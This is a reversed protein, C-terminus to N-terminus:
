YKSDGVYDNLHNKNNEVGVMQVMHSVVKELDKALAYSELELLCKELESRLMCPEQGKKIKEHVTDSAKDAILLEEFLKEGPRLGIYEIEISDEVNDSSPQHMYLAILNEALTKIKVPEGMDLLFIEGGDALQTTQLVLFCAEEITMFFRTVDPHTITVPGGTKIQELFLPIVSGSSNLVNGFRVASFRCDSDNGFSQVIMESIRKTLGMVNTPRVAKDSSILVFARANFREAALSMNLTGFINNRVSELINGEVLPVHKYAAAHLILNPRWKDFIAKLQDANTISCLLPVVETEFPKQSALARITKEVQYLAFESHDVMLITKPHLDMVQKCLETGISGGAGSVLVISGGIISRLGTTDSDVVSRGLLREMDLEKDVVGKTQELALESLSPLNLITLGALRWDNVIDRLEPRQALINTSVVLVNAIEHKIISSVDKPAFVKIGDLSRGNLTWDSDVIGKIRYNGLSLLYTKLDFEFLQVGCILVPRETSFSKYGPNHQLVKALVWRMSFISLGFIIPQILGITRPVGDIRILTILIAIALSYISLGKLLQMQTHSGFRRLAHGYWGSLGFALVAIAPIWCITRLIEVTLFELHGLRLYYSALFALIGLMFDVSVALVIKIIRPIKKIGALGMTM